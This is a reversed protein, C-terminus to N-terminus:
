ARQSYRYLIVAFQARTINGNPMLKKDASGSVIGNALAWSFADRAVAPVTRSDTYGALSTTNQNLRGTLRACRYLATVLQHRKVAGSPASGDAYGGEVAWRRAEAMSAPNAGTLRALIMWMQQNTINWNPNFLGGTGNMYGMQNAWEIEGAAWHGVPIDRFRQESAGAQPVAQTPNQAPMVDTTRRPNSSSSGEGPASAWNSGSWGSSNKRVFTVRVEVNSAPMTFRYQGSGLYDLSPVKGDARVARIMDLEYGSNPSATITVRDGAEVTTRSAVATGNSGQVITVQYTKPKEEPESPKDSGGPDDPDEPSGPKDPVDGAPIRQVDKYGCVGCARERSGDVGNAPEETVVWDGYEHQGTPEIELKHEEATATCGKRTCSVSGLVWGAVGCTPEQRTGEGTKPTFNGWLHGLPLIPVNEEAAQEQGCDKCKKVGTNKLGPETCSPERTVTEGGDEWAHNKMEIEETHEPENTGCEKCTREAITKIGKATCTPQKTITEAGGEWDHPLMEITKTKEMAKEDESYESEPAEAPCNRCPKVLTETGQRECTAADGERVIYKAAGWEHQGTAPKPTNSKVTGEARCLKCIELTKEYGDEGCTPEKKLTKEEFTHGDPNVPLTKTSEIVRTGCDTCEKYTTEVGTAKCTPQKTVETKTTWKHDAPDAGNERETRTGSCGPNQCKYTKVIECSQCAKHDAPDEAESVFAYNHSLAPTEQMVKTFKCNTSSPSTMCSVEISSSGKTTCSADVSISVVVAKHIAAGQWPNKDPDGTFEIQDGQCHLTKLKGGAPFADDAITIKSADGCVSAKVLGTCGAFAGSAISETGDLVVVQTLKECTAFANKGISKVNDSLQLTALIKCGVFANEKIETAAPTKSDSGFTVRTLNPCTAFAQFGVTKITAPIDVSTLVKGAFVNDAIATVKKGDHENPIVVAKTTNNYGTVTWEAGNLTLTVGNVAATTAGSTDAASAGVTLAAVAAALLLVRWVWRRM